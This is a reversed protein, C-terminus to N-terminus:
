ACTSAEEELPIDFVSRGAEWNFRMMQGTDVAIGMFLGDGGTARVEVPIGAVTLRTWEKDCLPMTARFHEPLVNVPDAHAIGDVVCVVPCASDRTKFLLANPPPDIPLEDAARKFSYCSRSKEVKLGAIEVVRAHDPHVFWNGEEHWAFRGLWSKPLREGTVKLWGLVSALYEPHVAGDVPCFRPDIGEEDAVECVIEAAACIHDPVGMEALREGVITSGTYEYCDCYRHLAECVASEAERLARSFEDKRLESPAPPLTREPKKAAVIQM